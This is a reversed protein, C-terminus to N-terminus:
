NIFGQPNTDWFVQTTIPRQNVSSNNTVEDNPLSFVRPFPVNANNIPATFASPFGTRRYGNYAETSNGFSALYYETLVIDLRGNMDAAAFDAMVEAVYADVDAATAAFPSDSAASRFNLVKNMSKRIGSELLAAADDSTGRSIAAEARLFDVFSSLLIPLIGAGGQNPADEGLLVNNSQTAPNDADFAGGVPYLGYTARFNRDVGTPRSDGHDRGYYANGLFCFNFNPVDVCALIDNPPDLTSQRYIYYRIRPDPITKDNLLLDMFSNGLFSSFGGPVYGVVFDPHRTDPETLSTGYTFEFDDEAEIFNGNALVANIRSADGINVLMKLQLSNALRIWQARNGGYYLDTTPAPTGANLDEIAENIQVLLNEYITADDDAAPNIIGEGARNAESFPIDGLYDVMTTTLYATLIRSIGRHFRLNEDTATQQEIINADELVSAYNQWEGDLADPEAVDLYSENLNTYRMVEDTTQNLDMLIDATELQVNNLLFNPDANEPSLLNPNTQLDEGFETIECSSISFFLCLGLILKIYNM